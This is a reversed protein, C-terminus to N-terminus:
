APIDHVIGNAIIAPQGGLQLGNISPIVVAPTDDGFDQPTTTLTVNGGELTRYTTGNSASQFDSTALVAGWIVHYRLVDNL